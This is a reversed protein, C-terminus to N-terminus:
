WTTDVKTDDGECTIKVNTGDKELWPQTWLSVTCQKVADDKSLEVTYTVLSGAVVQTTVKTVKNAKYSPGDGTALKALTTDLEAIAQQLEEGSLERHGGVVHDVGAAALCVLAFLTLYFFKNM